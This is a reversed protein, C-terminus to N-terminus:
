KKLKKLEKESYFDKMPLNNLEITSQIKREEDNRKVRPISNFNYLEFILITGMHSSYIKEIKEVADIRGEKELLEILEKQMSYVSQETFLRNKLAVDVIPEFDKKNLTEVNNSSIYEGFAANSPLLYFVFDKNYDM